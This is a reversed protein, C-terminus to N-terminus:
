LSVVYDATDLESKSIGFLAPKTKYIQEDIRAMIKNKKAIIAQLSSVVGM